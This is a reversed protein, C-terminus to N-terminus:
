ETLELMGVAYGNLELRAPDKILERESRFAEPNTTARGFSDEDLITGLVTGRSGRLTVTQTDASLNALWISTSKTGRSALAVVTASDSSEAAV